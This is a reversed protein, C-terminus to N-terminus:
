RGAQLGPVEACGQSFSRRLLVEQLLQFEAVAAIVQLDRYFSMFVFSFVHFCCTKM